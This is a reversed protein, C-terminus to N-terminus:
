LHTHQVKSSIQFQVYAPINIQISLTVSAKVTNRKQASLKEPYPLYNIIVCAQNPLIPAMNLVKASQASNVM